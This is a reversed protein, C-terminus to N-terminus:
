PLQFVGPFAIFLFALRHPNANENEPTPFGAGDRLATVSLAAWSFTGIMTPSSVAALLLLGLASTARPLVREVLAWLLARM